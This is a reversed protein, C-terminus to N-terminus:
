LLSVHRQPISKIARTAYRILNSKGCQDDGNYQNSIYSYVMESVRRMLRSKRVAWRRGNGLIATHEPREIISVISYARRGQPTDIEIIGADGNLGKVFGTKDWVKVTKNKSFCTGDKLRDKTRATSALGLYYLMNEAAAQNDIVPYDRGLLIQQSWIATFLRNLDQASIKNLYTKGGRPIYEVLELEKYIGTESLISAVQSPGGLLELIRNTTFNSSFRIMATLLRHQDPTHEIKGQFRQLMYAHLIPVKILSAAKVHKRANISVLYKQTQLDQVILSLVDQSDMLKQARAEETYFYIAGELLSNYREQFSPPQKLELHQPQYIKVLKGVVWGKTGNQLSVHIWGRKNKNLSYLHMGQPLISIIRHNSGPGTRLKLSRSNVIAYTTLEESTKTTANLSPIWALNLLGIYILFFLVKPRKFFLKMM